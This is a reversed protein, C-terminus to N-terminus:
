GTRRRQVRLMMGGLGLMFLATPEPLAQLTEGIYAYHSGGGEWSHLYVSGASGLTDDVGFALVERARQIESDYNWSATSGAGILGMTGFVTDETYGAAYSGPDGGNTHDFRWYFSNGYTDGSPVQHSALEAPLDALTMGYWYSGADNTIAAGDLDGTLALAWVAAGLSMVPVGDNDDVDALTNIVGQRWVSKDVANAYSAALAHHALYLLPQSDEAYGSRLANIYGLTGGGSNKVATYFNGVATRWANSSPDASIESLTALGYAEDGLFNGGATNLIYTGGDEAATKYENAGEIGYASALGAIIPGTFSQAGPWAGNGAQTAVLRDSGLVIADDITIAGRGLTATLAVVAIFSVGRSMQRSMKKAEKGFKM